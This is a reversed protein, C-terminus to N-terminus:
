LMDVDEFHTIIPHPQGLQGVVTIIDFRIPTDTKRYNIYHTIAQRLHRLKQWDVAQEPSTFVANRRTKVEVFVLTGDKSAVIDLDRHGSHWNRELIIYGKNSLYVAATEEGWIGMQTHESTEDYGNKRTHQKRLLQECREYASKVWGEQDPVNPLLRELAKLIGTAETTRGEDTCLRLMDVATWFMASAARPGKDTAYQRRAAEYAEVTHGSKRLDFIENITM